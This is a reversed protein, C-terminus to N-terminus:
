PQISRSVSMSILTSPSQDASVGLKLLTGASVDCQRQMPELCGRGCAELVIQNQQRWAKLSIPASGQIAPWRCQTPTNGDHVLLLPLESTTTTALWEFGGYRTDTIWVEASDPHLVLGDAISYHTGPAETSSNPTQSISLHNPMPDLLPEIYRTWPSRNEFRAGRIQGGSGTSELWVLLGPSASRLASVPGVSRSRRARWQLTWPDFQWWGESNIAWASGDTGAVLSRAGSPSTVDADIRRIEGNAAVWLVEASPQCGASCSPDCSGQGDDPTCGGLALFGGGSLAAFQREYVSSGLDRDTRAKGGVPDIPTRALADFWEATTIPAGNADVGGAVLIRDDSLRLVQPLSRGEALTALGALAYSRENPDVTELTRLPQGTDNLGGVLLTRGDRLVVAGHQTRGSSLNISVPDFGDIAPNYVDASASVTGNIGDTGGAVLIGDGFATASAFGRRQRLAREAPISSAIGTDLAVTIAGVTEENSTESFGGAVLLTNSNPLVALAKGDLEQLYDASGASLLCSGSEPWLSIDITDGRREGVGLFAEDAARARLEVAATEIPILLGLDRAEEPIDAEFTSNSAPFDGLAALDLKALEESRPSCSSIWHARVDLRDAEKAGDTCGCLLWIAGVLTRHARGM